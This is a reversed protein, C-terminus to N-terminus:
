LRCSYLVSYNVETAITQIEHIFRPPNEDAYLRNSLNKTIKPDINDYQIKTTRLGIFASNLLLPWSADRKDNLIVLGHREQALKWKKGGENKGCVLITRLL